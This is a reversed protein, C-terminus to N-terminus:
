SAWAYSVLPWPWGAMWPGTRWFISGTWHADPWNRPAGAGPAAVVFRRAIAHTMLLVLALGEVWWVFFQRPIIRAILRCLDPFLLLVVAGITGALSVLIVWAIRGVAHTMLLWLTARGTLRPGRGRMRATFAPAALGREWGM